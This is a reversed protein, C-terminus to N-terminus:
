GWIDIIAPALIDLEEDDVAAALALEDFWLAATPTALFGDWNGYRRETRAQFMTPRTTNVGAYNTFPTPSVRGGRPSSWPGGRLLNNNPM